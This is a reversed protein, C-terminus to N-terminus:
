NREVLENVAVPDIQTFLNDVIDSALKRASEGQVYMRLLMKVTDIRTERLEDALSEKIEEATASDHYEGCLCNCGERRCDSTCDHDCNPHIM